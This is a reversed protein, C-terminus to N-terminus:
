CKIRMETRRVVDQEVAVLNVVSAAFALASFIFDSHLDMRIYSAALAVRHLYAIDSTHLVRAKLSVFM